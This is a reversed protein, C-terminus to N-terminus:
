AIERTQLDAKCAEKPHFTNMVYELGDKCLDTMNLTSTEKHKETIWDTLTVELYIKFIYADAHDEFGHIPIKYNDVSLFCMYTKSEKQTSFDLRVVNDMLFIGMGTKLVLM